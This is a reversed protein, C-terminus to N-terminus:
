AGGPKFVRCLEIVKTHLTAREDRGQKLDSELELLLPLSRQLQPLSLSRVEQKLFYIRKPNAIEAAAAVEADSAVGVLAKLWLWLRFQSVLTAVIRLAPENRDLLDSVLALATPTDGQKLAQALKLSTQTSVTVLEAAVAPPIPQPSAGWYLALKELELHLQRTDNGVAETLLDLTGPELNMGREKVVAAVQQHIQDTKWPPITAFERVEGWAKFLKIFKARGDPKAASTLLLVSTDPLQPLTREFEALVTEPCRQGLSTNALWVLRQGEGFPPTMAQNLAQSPGSSAEAPVVDYNFSAWAENLTRQRLTQVAKQLAFDDDGWFYYAPM